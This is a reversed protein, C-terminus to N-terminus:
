LARLMMISRVRVSKEVLTYSFYSFELIHKLKWTNEASQSVNWLIMKNDLQIFYTISGSFSEMVRESTM